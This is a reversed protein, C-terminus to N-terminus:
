LANGTAKQGKKEGFRRRALLGESTSERFDDFGFFSDFHPRPRNSDLRTLLHSLYSSTIYTTM